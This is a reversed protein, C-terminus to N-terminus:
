ARLEAGLDTRLRDVLADHLRSAEEDTLTRDSAQYRISYTLSKRGEGVQPGTYVDIHTVGTVRAGMQQGQELPRCLAEQVQAAPLDADVVVAMDRLVAPFRPLPEFTPVLTACESLAAIDLEVLFVGAPLDWAQLVLPHVEGLWGLRADGLEVLAASRPHLWPIRDGAPVFKADYVGLGDLASEVLAKADYFDVAADDNTWSAKSRRGTLLAALSLPERIRGDEPLYARGVEYLRLDSAGFRRNYALNSLLSHSVTTRMVSQETSLPNTLKVTRPPDGGPVLRAVEEPSVFSYNVVEACGAAHAAVRVRSVVAEEGASGGDGFEADRRPLAAPISDFGHIRAVEEILDIERSMETRFSPVEFSAQQEDRSTCSFGLRELIEVQRDGDLFYGLVEATRRFRLTVERSAPPRPYEDIAGRRVTGTAHEAILGAARDAALLVAEPDAGREFRHSAETHLGHRRATRRVGAPEFWASELLIRKTDERVECDGGGMVGALAIPAAADAIVLDDEDLEREVADLTRMKEGASARRIVVTAEALRDLDFAHLPHGWELLVYNTVDVVNNIPRVGCGTLRAQMWSPSPGVTVGEIVRGVYRGCREPDDIRITAATAAVEDSEVLNTKPRVLQLGTVAGLDRAVGIHSLADPRNPTVGVEFVVDDLGLHDALPAGLQADAPLELIGEHADGLGLEDEACLMGESSVGRVERAELTLGNPLTTGLRAFAVKMGTRANPAGCVVTHNSTGDTVKCVRLRDADPHPECETVEAVVVGELQEGPREIGEVELGCGTLLRACEQASPMVGGSLLESLWQYSVRM